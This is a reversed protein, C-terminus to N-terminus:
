YTVKGWGCLTCNSQLSVAFEIHGKRGGVIHVAQSSLFLLVAQSNLFLLSLM